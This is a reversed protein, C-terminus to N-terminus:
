LYRDRSVTNTKYCVPLGDKDFLKNLTFYNESSTASGLSQYSSSHGLQNESTSRSIGKGFFSNRHNPSSPSLPMSVMDGIIDYECESMQSPYSKRPSSLPKMQPLPQKPFKSVGSINTKNTVSDYM